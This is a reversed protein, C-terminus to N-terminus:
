DTICIGRTRSEIFSDLDSKKYKVLRGIKVYPLAYRGTCRWVDLTATTVGLYNAAVRASLLQDINISETGQM